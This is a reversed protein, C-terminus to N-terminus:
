QNGLLGSVMSMVPLWGGGGRGWCPHHQLSPATLTLPPNPSPQTPATLTPSRPTFTPSRPTLTRYHMEEPAHWM